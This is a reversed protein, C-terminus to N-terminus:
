KPNNGLSTLEKRATGNDGLQYVYVGAPSFSFPQFPEALLKDLFAITGIGTTVHPNFNKGSAKEVYSSVWDITFKNISPEEPTTVFAAANGTPVSYPAVAEILERQLRLLNATPKVVIGALGTKDGKGYYYKFANLRWRM